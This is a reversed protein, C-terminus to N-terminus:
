IKKAYEEDWWLCHFCFTTPNDVVNCRKNEYFKCPESERDNEIGFVEYYKQRNTIIPKDKSWQEVIAIAEEVKFNRNCCNNALECLSCSGKHYNCMRKKETLYEKATLMM